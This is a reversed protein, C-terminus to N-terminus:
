LGRRGYGYVREQQLRLDQQLLQFVREGLQYVALPDQLLQAALGALDTEGTPELFQGPTSCALPAVAAPPLCRDSPAESGLAALRSSPSSATM